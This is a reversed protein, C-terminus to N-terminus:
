PWFIVENTSLLAQAYLAVSASSLYRVGLALEEPDPDRAFITRYLAEIREPPTPKKEASKALEAALTQVFGSNMVFLAQLPNITLHRM